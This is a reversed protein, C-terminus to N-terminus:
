LGYRNMEFATSKRAHRVSAQSHNPFERRRGNANAFAAIGLELGVAPVIKLLLEVTVLALRYIGALVSEADHAFRGLVLLRNRM